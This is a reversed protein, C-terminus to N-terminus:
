TAAGVQLAGDDGVDVVARSGDTLAGELVSRALRDAVERQLVRKLPRAGFAPDYGLEALKHEAITRAESCRTGDDLQLLQAIEDLTFGLDRSRLVFNLRKILNRGYLRHGGESRPPQPLMGIQEYYRITPVKVQTRRSLEGIPIDMPFVEQAELAQLM